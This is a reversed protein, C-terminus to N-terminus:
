LFLKEGDRFFNNRYVNESIKHSNKYSKWLVRMEVNLIVIGNIRLCCFELTGNTWYQQLRIYKKKKKKKKASM